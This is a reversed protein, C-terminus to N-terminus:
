FVETTHWGVEYTWYQLHTTCKAYHIYNGEQSERNKKVTFCRSHFQGKFIAKVKRSRKNNM